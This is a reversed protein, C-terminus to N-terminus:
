RTDISIQENGRPKRPLRYMIEEVPVGIKALREIITKTVRLSGIVVGEAGYKHANELIEVYEDEIIGPIVPRLFLFPKLGARRLNRITEFRKDPPPVLPELKPAWKITIITVLPSIRSKSIRALEYAERETIYMKTSFQTPNGLYTYISEIYEMTKRRTVGHFPETVSGIALLSGREGPVFYPNSLLSYVLELGTLPYERISWQFGMDEIYCYICKLSCGIGTHITFGCPRPKRRTHPDKLAKRVGEKGILQEIHKKLARKSVLENLM